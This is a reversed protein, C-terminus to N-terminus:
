EAYIRAETNARGGESTDWAIFRVFAVNENTITNIKIPESPTRFAATGGGSASELGFAEYNMGCIFNKNGDYFGVCCYSTNMCFVYQLWVSQNPTVPIYDSAWASASGSNTPTGNQITYKNVSFISEGIFSEYNPTVSFVVENSYESDDFGSAKAKVVLTHEGESLNLASLDFNIEEGTTLLIYNGESTKEYLEYSTANEVASGKVFTAM